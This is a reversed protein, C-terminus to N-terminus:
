KIRRAKGSLTMTSLGLPRNRTTHMTVLKEGGPFTVNLHITYIQTVGASIMLCTITDEQRFVALSDKGDQYENEGVEIVDGDEQKVTVLRIVGAQVKADDSVHPTKLRPMAIGPKGVAGNLAARDEDDMKMAKLSEPKIHSAFYTQTGALESLEYVAISQVKQAVLAVPMLVMFMLCKMSIVYAMRGVRCIM